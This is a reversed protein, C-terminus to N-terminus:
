DKVFYVAKISDNIKVVLVRCPTGTEATPLTEIYSHDLLTLKDAENINYAFVIHSSSITVLESGSDEINDISIITKGSDDTEAASLQGGFMLLRTTGATQREYKMGTSSDKAKLIVEVSKIYGQSTAVYRFVDGESLGELASPKAWIEQLEKSSKDYGTLYARVNANYESDPAQSSMSHGQYIAIPSTADIEIEDDASAIDYVVVAAATRLSTSSVDYAEISYEFGDKFYDTGKRRSFVNTNARDSPVIFVFTNANIIFSNHGEGSDSVSKFQKNASDYKMVKKGSKSSIDYRLDLQELDSSEITQISTIQGSTNTTYKVLQSVYLNNLGELYDREVDINISENNEMIERLEAIVDTGQLSKGDVRVRSAGTLTTIASGTQTLMSFRLVDREYTAGRIFGYSSSSETKDFAAIKGDKDLYFKGSDDVKFQNGAERAAYKNYYRSVKYPKEDIYITHEDEVGTITGTISETSIVVEIKNRGSVFADKVSLVAWKQINSFSASTGNARVFTIENMTDDTDLTLTPNETNSRYNDSIMKDTANVSKVVYTEYSTILIRDYSGTGTSDILEVSGSASEPMLLSRADSTNDIAGNVMVTPNPAIKLSTTNRDKENAWYEITVGSGFSGSVRDIADLDNIVVVDSDSTKDEVYILTRDDDLTRTYYFTISRGILNKTDIGNDAFLYEEGDSSDKILVEGPRVRGATGSASATSNAVVEGRSRYLNLYNNLINKDTIVYREENQYMTKEMLDVELSNYVLRAVQWRKAAVGQTGNVGTLINLQSAAALYGGPWVLETNDGVINYAMPEYGLACVLMKVAQEYTVNDEPGFNGDGYGSIIGLTSAVSIFGSAWSDTPVDDFTYQGAAAQASEEQGLTRVVVTAFEARTIDGEPRFTGDGDGKLLELAALLSVASAYSKSSDVDSFTTAFGITGISGLVMTLALVLSVLKSKFKM